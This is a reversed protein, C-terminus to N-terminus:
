HTRFRSWLHERVDFAADIAALGHGVGEVLCEEVAVGARCGDYASCEPAGPVPTRTAACGLATTAMEELGIVDAFPHVGDRVPPWWNTPNFCRPLADCAPLYAANAPSQQARSCCGTDFPVNPDAAGHVHYISTDGSPTCTGDSPPSSIPGIARFVDPHDCRMSYLFIGGLSHGTGFVRSADITLGHVSSLRDLVALTYGQDDVGSPEGPKGVNWQYSGTPAACDTEGDRCGQMFVMVFGERSATEEWPLTNRWATARGGGGHFGLVAPLAGAPMPDPVCLIYGRRVGDHMFAHSACSPVAVPGADGGAGGDGPAADAGADLGSADGADLAGGDTRGADIAGGDPDTGGGCAVILLGCLWGRRM